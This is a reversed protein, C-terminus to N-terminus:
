ASVNGSHGNHGWKHADILLDGKSGEAAGTLAVM